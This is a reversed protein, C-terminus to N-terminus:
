GKGAWSQRQLLNLHQVSTAKVRSHSFISNLTVLHSTLDPSSFFVLQKRGTNNFKNIVSEFDRPGGSDGKERQQRYLSVAM